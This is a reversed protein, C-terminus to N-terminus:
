VPFIKALDLVPLVVKNILLVPVWSVLVVTKGFGAVNDGPDDVVGLTNIWSRVVGSLVGIPVTAHLSLPAPPTNAGDEHVSDRPVHVVDYVGGAFATFLM